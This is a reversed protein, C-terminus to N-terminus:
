NRRHLRNHFVEDEYARGRSALDVAADLALDACEQADPLLIQANKAGSAALPMLPRHPVSEQCLAKKVNAANTPAAMHEAKQIRNVHGSAM